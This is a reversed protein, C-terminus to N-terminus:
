DLVSLFEKAWKDILVKVEYRDGNIITRANVFDQKDENIYKSLKISSGNFTGDAQMALFTGDRMGQVAIKAAIDPRAALDPNNVLDVGLRNSWYIYHARGTIQVYGRGRYNYGDDTNPRNGAAPSTGGSGYKDNFYKKNVDENLNRYTKEYMDVGLRSEKKATALIYAIQAKNTVGSKESEALLLSIAKTASEKMENPVVTLIKQLTKVEEGALQGALQSAKESAWRGVVDPAINFFLDPNIKYLPKLFWDLSDDKPFPMKASLSNSMVSDSPKNIIFWDLLKEILNEQWNTGNQQVLSGSIIVEGTIPDTTKWISSSIGSQSPFIDEHLYYIQNDTLRVNTAEQESLNPFIEKLAKIREEPEYFQRSDSSKEVFNVLKKDDIQERSTDVPLGAQELYQKRLEDILEAKIVKPQEQNLNDDSSIGGALNEEDEGGDLLDDTESEEDDLWDEQNSPVFSDKGKINEVLGKLDNKWLDLIGNLGSLWSEIGGDKIANGLYLATNGVKSVNELIGAVAKNFNGAFSQGIALAGNFFNGIANLWDGNQIAKIGGYIMQPAQQLSQVVSLMVNKLTGSCQNIFNTMGASAASAVSGLIQLFGMISDGSMLSRAGAYAGSAVTQLTKMMQVATASEGLAQSMGGTIATLGTMVGNFIAGLWDGNLAAQITSIAGSVAGLGIAFPALVPFTPTLITLITSLIGAVQSIIGLIKQWFSKKRAKREAIRRKIIEDLMQKGQEALDNSIEVAQEAYAVKNLVELYLPEIIQKEGGLEEARQLEKLFQQSAKQLDQQATQLLANDWQEELDIRNIEAKYQQVQGILGGMVNLLNEQITAAEKGQLALHIDGRAEALLAKVDAPLEPQQTELDKLSTLLGALQTQLQMPDDTADLTALGLQGRINNLSQRLDDEAQLQKLQEIKATTERRQRELELRDREMRAKVAADINAQWNQAIEQELQAQELNLIELAVLQNFTQETQERIRTIGDLRAQAVALEQEKKEREAQTEAVKANLENLLKAATEQQAQLTKMQSEATEKAVRFADAQAQARRKLEANVLWEQYYRDALIRDEPRALGPTCKGGKDSALDKYDRFYIEAATAVGNYNAVDLLAKAEKYGADTAQQLRQLIQFELDNVERKKQAAQLTYNANSQTAEVLAKLIAQHEKAAKLHEDNQALLDTKLQQLPATLAKSAAEAQEALRQAEALAKRAEDLQQQLNSYDDDPDNIYADLLRQEALIVENQATLMTRKQTLATQQATLVTAKNSLMQLSKDVQVLNTNLDNLADAAGGNSVLDRIQNEILQRQQQLNTTLVKTSALEEGLAVSQREVWKEAEALEQQTQIAKQNLEGREKLADAIAARYEESDIDYEEWEASVKANQADAEKQADDLQQQLTPLLTELFEQQTKAQPIEDRAAELEAFFNRAEKVPSEAQNAADNAAIWQDKLPELREVVKRWKDAEVLHAYGQQRLQPFIQSYQSWLVWDHDYHNVTEYWCKKKGCSKKCVKRQESWYPGSKHSVAWHYAAQQEYWAAQALAAYGQAEHSAQEAKAKDYLAQLPNRGEVAAANLIVDAQTANLLSSIQENPNRGELTAGTLLDIASGNEPYKALFAARRTKADGPMQLYEKLQESEVGYRIAIPAIEKWLEADQKIRLKIKEIADDTSTVTSDLRDAKVELVGLTAIADQLNAETRQYEGHPDAFNDKIYTILGDVSRSLIEQQKGLEKTQQNGALFQETWNTTGFRLDKNIQDTLRVYDLVTGSKIAADAAQESNLQSELAQLKVDNSELKQRIELEQKQRLPTLAETAQNLLQELEDASTQNDAKLSELDQLQKQSQVILNNLAQKSVEDTTNALGQQWNAILQKLNNTQNTLDKGVNRLQELHKNVQPEVQTAFFDVDSESALIGFGILQRLATSHLQTTQTLETALNQAKNTASQIIQTQQNEQIQFPELQKTVSAIAGKLAAEQGELQQVTQGIKALESQKQVLESQQQSIKQNLENIRALTEQRQQWLRNRQDAIFSAQQLNARAADDEGPNYAYQRGNWYWKRQEHAAAQNLFYREAAALPDDRDILSQLLLTQNGLQLKSFEIDRQIEAISQQLTRGDKLNEEVTKLQQQLDALQQRYPEGAQRIELLTQTATAQQQTAQQWAQWDQQYKQELIGAKNFLDLRSQLRNVEADVQDLYKDTLEIERYKDILKQELDLKQQKLRDLQAILDVRQQQQNSLQTNLDNLQNQTQNIQSQLNNVQQTIAQLEPQLQQLETQQNALQANLAQQQQTLSQQQNQLTAIQQQTAAIQPQLTATMQQAQVQAANRQVAYSNAAAQHANRNAAAQPNPLRGEYRGHNLYHWWYAAWRNAGVARAVDPNYALYADLNFVYVQSNWYNAADQHAQRQQELSNVAANAQNIQNQYDQLVSLQQRFEADKGTIQNQIDTLQSQTVAIANEQQEIEAAKEARDAELNFLQTGLNKSTIKTEEIANETAAIQEEKKAIDGEKAPILNDELNAKQLGLERYEQNLKDLEKQTKTQEAKADALRKDLNDFGELFNAGSGEMSKLYEIKSKPAISDPATELEKILSSIALREPSDAIALALQDKQLNAWALEQELNELYDDWYKLQEQIPVSPTQLLQKTLEQMKELVQVKVAELEQVAKEVASLRERYPLLFGSMELANQLNKHAHSRLQEIAEVEAQTEKLRNETVATAQQQTPIKQNALTQLEKEAQSIQLNLTELKQRQVPTHLDLLDKEAQLRLADAAIEYDIGQKLVPWDRLRTQLKEVQQQLVTAQQQAQQALQQYNNREGAAVNALYQAQNAPAIHEPYHRWGYVPEQNRGSRGARRTGVQEWRNILSNHWNATDQNAQRRQEAVAAQQFYQNAIKQQETAQQQLLQLVKAADELSGTGLDLNNKRAELFDAYQNLLSSQQQAQQSLQTMSQSNQASIGAQWNYTDKRKQQNPDIGWGWVQKTRGSRGRESGVVQWRQANIAAAANQYRQREVDFGLAQQQFQQAMQQQQLAAQRVAEPNFQLNDDADGFPNNLKEKAKALDSEALAIQEKISALLTETEKELATKQEGFQTLQEELEKKRTELAQLRSQEIQYHQTALALAEAWQQAHATTIAAQTSVEQYKKFADAIKNGVQIELESLTLAPNGLDALVQWQELLSEQTNELSEIAKQTGESAARELIKVRGEGSFPEWFGPKESFGPKEPEIFQARSVAEKVDLLGAGTQADWGPTNLDVATDLLLQKVQQYSLGSNAAWILAAAATVYPTARSTGVFANPDDDWEGGPAVISLGNGMASYDAREELQNVAGVTIINDFQEAVAGLASMKDGTNGAAVVLLINHQQAYAIADREAPTLEYRTTVGIDDLQSLDFSLNVIGRDEGSLRVKDVFKVLQEAWNGNSIPLTDFKALPNVSAFSETVRQTHEGRFDLFGVKPQKAEISLLDVAEDANILYSDLLTKDPNSLAEGLSVPLGFEEGIEKSSLFQQLTNIGVNSIGLQSLIGPKNVFRLIDPDQQIISELQSLAIEGAESDLGDVLDEPNQALADTLQTLAVNVAQTSEQSLTSTSVTFSHIVSNGVDDFARIAVDTVGTKPLGTLHLQNGVLEVQLSASDGAIVEYHLKDPNPYSFVQSLDVTNTPQTATLTIDSVPHAIDIKIDANAAFALLEKGLVSNRWDKGPAVAEEFHQAKGTAGKVQFIIDNYDRDAKDIRLDEFAFTHGKGTVDVIQPLNGQVTSISFLPSKAGGIKPNDFVEQVKGNPVLMIAFENGPTMSVTKAGQYEGANWSQEGLKGSFRAGELADSIVIHGLESSSLARHAAEQIFAESGPQLHEMGKLSFIALDGQYYGGDFLYDVSVKGTSDVTFVGHTEPKIISPNIPPLADIVTTNHENGITKIDPTFESHENVTSASPKDVTSTIATDSPQSQSHTALITETVNSNSTTNVTSNDATSTPVTVSDNTQTQASNAINGPDSSSHNLDLRTETIEPSNVSTHVSQNDQISTINIESNNPHNIDVPTQNAVDSFVPTQSVDASINTTEVVSIKHSDVSTSIDSNPTINQTPSTTVVESHEVATTSAIDTQNSNIAIAINNTELTQIPLPDDARDSTSIDSHPIEKNIPIPTKDGVAIDKTVDSRIPESIPVIASKDGAAIDQTVDSHIPESITAIASKDGVAIDKIVDSHIPESITAIASKDGVAIDKIVDSHIPESITAIASKDGVAIDKTIDSYIPESITAIASKDGVAIDPTVDSHIPESITASASKDSVVINQDSTSIVDSHNPEPNSASASKDGVAIDKIVDSHIPESITASASKDGISIDQTVDSHIPESTPVSASKDGVSIDQTVDSHIPESTPVSASQNEGVIDRDSSSTADSSHHDSINSNATPIDGVGDNHYDTNTDLHSVDYVPINVRNDPLNIVEIKGVDGNGNHSLDSSIDSKAFAILEEGIKSTRWDKEPAIVEGLNVAEGTAGRVHFIMDNYDRDTSRDMRLDELAFTHGDGTVDAIQGIHFAQNPNATVLSFLPRLAGGAIPNDSLQQVTGNPVLMVGFEDGPRMSFTKVGLYTGENNNGDGLNGSFKAGETPDSIVVYGFESNSLARHAAEQIFQHSGPEFKEMGDLSFIALEGKYGGGDFLYDISVQGTKGVTFVGSTFTLKESSVNHIHEVNPSTIIEPDTTHATSDPLQQISDNVHTVDTGHITEKTLSIDSATTNHEGLNPTNITSSQQSNNLAQKLSDTENSTDSHILNDFNTETHHQSVEVTLLNETAGYNHQASEIKPAIVDTTDQRDSQIVDTKESINSHTLDDSDSQAHPPSVEANVTHLHESEIKTNILHTTDIRDDVEISDTKGATDSHNLDSYDRHYDSDSVEATLSVDATQHTGDATLLKIQSHYTIDTSVLDTDTHSIADSSHHSESIPTSEIFSLPELEGDAISIDTSHAIIVESNHSDISEIHTSTNDVTAIHNSDASSDFDHNSESLHVEPLTIEHLETGVLDHYNRDDGDVIGSPTLIPELIFTELQPPPSIKQSKRNKPTAQKKSFFNFRGMYEIWEM